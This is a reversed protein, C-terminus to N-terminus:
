NAKKRDSVAADCEPRDGVITGEARSRPAEWVSYECDIELFQKPTIGKVVVRTVGQLDKDHDFEFGHERVIREFEARRIPDATGFRFTTPVYPETLLLLAISAAVGGLIWM